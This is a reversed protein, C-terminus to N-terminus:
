PMHYIGYETYQLPKVKYKPQLFSVVDILESVTMVDNFVQMKSKGNQDVISELSQSRPALKHSPNIISTVLQAYTKVMSSNGGLPIPVDFKKVISNDDFGELSHCSLCQYKTFVEKGKELDGAPLSFGKPSQPGFNCAVIFCTFLAILIFLKINM